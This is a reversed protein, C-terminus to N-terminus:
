VRAPQLKLCEVFNEDAFVVRYVDANQCPFEGEENTVGLAHLTIEIPVQHSVCIIQEGKHLLPLHRVFKEMRELMEQYSESPYTEILQDTPILDLPKDLQMNILNASELTRQRPSCYLATPQFTALYQGVKILQQHGKNDLLREDDVAANPNYHHDTQGHRVLFIVTQNNSKM